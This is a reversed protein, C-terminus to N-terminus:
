HQPRASSGSKLLVLAQVKVPCLWQNYLFFVSLAPGSGVRSVLELYAKEGSGGLKVDSAGEAKKCQTQREKM